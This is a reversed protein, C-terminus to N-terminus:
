KQIIDSQNIQFLCQMKYGKANSGSQSYRWLSNNNIDKNLKHQEDNAIKAGLSDINLPNACDKNTWYGGTTGSGHFMGQATGAKVLVSDLAKFQAGGVTTKEYWIIWIDKQSDNQVTKRFESGPDCGILVSALLINLLPKYKM